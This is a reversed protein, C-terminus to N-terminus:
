GERRRAPDRVIGAKRLRDSDTKMKETMAAAVPAGKLIKAM